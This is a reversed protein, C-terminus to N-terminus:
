EPQSFGILHGDPDRLYFELLGHPARYLPIVIQARNAVADYVAQIDPTDIYCAVPLPRAPDVAGSMDSEFSSRSQLMWEVAGSHLIAFATTDGRPVSQTVTFGLVDCYFKVAADVDPVILIPTVRAHKPLKKSM